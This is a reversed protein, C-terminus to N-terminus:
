PRLKRLKRAEGQAMGGGGSDRWRGASPTYSLQYLM